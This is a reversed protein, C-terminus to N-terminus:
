QRWLDRILKQLLVTAFAEFEFAEILFAGPGGIVRKSYHNALHVAVGTSNPNPRASPQATTARAAVPLGLSVGLAVAGVLLTASKM